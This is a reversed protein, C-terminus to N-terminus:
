MNDKYSNGLYTGFSISTKKREATFGSKKPKSIDSFGKSSKKGHNKSNGSRKKNDSNRAVSYPRAFEDKDFPVIVVYRNPEKGDSRTTVTESNALTTHIIRREYASMPELIVERRIETAKTELKKALSILTEERKNRFSDCDVVLKKYEKKGINLVAGALTQIADLIEGRHSTLKTSNKTDLVIVTKGDVESVSTNVEIDMFGLLKNIFDLTKQTEECDIKCDNSKEECALNVDNKLEEIDVVAKGKLRGFLGKVPEEIVKIIATEKTLNLKELGENVAEEVTKGIFEM